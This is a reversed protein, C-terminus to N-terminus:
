PPGRSEVVVPEAFRVRPDSRLRALLDAMPVTQGPQMALTYVGTASPGDIIRLKTSSVIGTLEGVTVTPSFVTRVQGARDPAARATSATRYDPAFGPVHGKDTYVAILGVGVALFVAAAVRWRTALPEASQRGPRAAVSASPDVRRDDTLATDASQDIRAWLKQLAAHPAHEVNSGDHRVAQRLVRQAAVEQRCADCQQVHRELWAVDSSGLRGNVLWPILEIAEAHTRLGDPVTNM